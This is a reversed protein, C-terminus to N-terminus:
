GGSINKIKKALFNKEFDESECNNVIKTKKKALFIDRLFNRM